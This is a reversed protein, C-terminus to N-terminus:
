VSQRVKSLYGNNRTVNLMKQALEDWVVKEITFAASAQLWDSAKKLLQAQFVRLYKDIWRNKRAARSFAAPIETKLSLSM